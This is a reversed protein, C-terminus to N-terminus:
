LVSKLVEIPQVILMIDTLSIIINLQVNLNFVLFKAVTNKYYFKHSLIIATKKGYIKCHLINSM